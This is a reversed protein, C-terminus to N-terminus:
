LGDRNIADNKYKFGLISLDLLALIQGQGFNLTLIKTCNQQFPIRQILFDHNGRLLNILIFLFGTGSYYYRSGNNIKRRRRWITWTRGGFLYM